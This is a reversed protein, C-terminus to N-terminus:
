KTVNLDSLIELIISKILSGQDYVSYAELLLLLHEPHLEHWNKNEISIITLMLLNLNNLNSINQNIDQILFYSPMVRQDSIFDHNFNSNYEKKIMLFRNLVDITELITINVEENNLGNNLSELFSIITTMENNENLEILFKVYELQSKSIEKEDIFNLWKSAETYNKNSIHAMAIQMSYKSTDFSPNFTQIINESLSYAIKELGINKAFEWYEIIVKLRDEPFIQRNALQYYFAMILENDQNFSQITQKPENFQQSNFDVLQYLASLIDITVLNENFSKNVAKIRTKMETSDSLIVAKSLNLPDIEIFKETLPLENIRLMASYLFILDKSQLSNINEFVLEEKNELFTYDLLQQFFLDPVQEKDLLVSNQLKAESLKNEVTLCFIDTKLLLFNQLVISEDLLQSKLECVESLKYTSLLYNLEITKIYNLHETDTITALNTEKILNYSKRIEGIDYLKKIIFYKKNADDDNIETTPNSLIKLFENSLIQSNIDNIKQLNNQLIAEDIDFISESQIFSVDELDENQINNEEQLNTTDIEDETNLESISDDSIDSATTIEGEESELVSENKDNNEQELMLQYISEDKLLEIVTIKEDETNLESISDDFIDSDTTNEGEVESAKLSYSFFLLFTLILKFFM